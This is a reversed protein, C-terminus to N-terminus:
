DETTRVEGTSVESGELVELSDAGDLVGTAVLAADDDDVYSTDTEDDAGLESITDGIVMTDGTSVSLAGAAVLTAADDEVDTAGTDDAAGLELLEDGTVSLVGTAGLAAAEDAVYTGGMEAAGLELLEDDMLRWVVGTAVDIPSGEDGALTRVRDSDVESCDTAVDLGVGALL